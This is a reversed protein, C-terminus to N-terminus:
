AKVEDDSDDEDQETYDGKRDGKLFVGDEPQAVSERNDGQCHLKDHLGARKIKVPM